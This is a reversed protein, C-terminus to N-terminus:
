IECVRLRFEDLTMHEYIEIYLTCDGINQITEDVGKKLEEGEHIYCFMDGCLTTKSM